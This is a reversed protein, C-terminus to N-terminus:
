ITLVTEFLWFHRNKPWSQRTYDRQRDFISTRSRKFGNQLGTLAALRLEGASSQEPDKPGIM